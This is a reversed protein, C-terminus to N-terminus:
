QYFIFGGLDAKFDVAMSTHPKLNVVVEKEFDFELADPKDKLRVIITHQGAPVIFKEYIRAPGDRTLGLPEVTADYLRKGDVVLQIRMPVRERGCTNPRREAPPMKAIEQPSLRRCEVKRGASHALSLKIEASGPPVLPIRPWTALVGIAACVTAYFVSQGAIQPLSLM